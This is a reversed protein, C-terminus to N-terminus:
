DDVVGDERLLRDITTSIINSWLVSGEPTEIGIQIKVPYPAYQSGYVHPKQDFRLTEESSLKVSVENNKVTCRDTALELIVREAYPSGQAYVIRFSSGVPPTFSLKFKHHPTTGPIM